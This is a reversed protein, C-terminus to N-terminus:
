VRRGMTELTWRVGEDSWTSSCMHRVAQFTVERHEKELNEVARRVDRVIETESGKALSINKGM